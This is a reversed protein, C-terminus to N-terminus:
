MNMLSRSRLKSDVGVFLLRLNFNFNLTFSSSWITLRNSDFSFSFIFYINWKRWAWQRVSYMWLVSYLACGLHIACDANCNIIFPIFIAPRQFIGSSFFLFFLINKNGEREAGIGTKQNSKTQQQVKLNTQKILEGQHCSETQKVANSHHFLWPVAFLFCMEFFFFGCRHAVLLWLMQGSFAFAYLDSFLKEKEDKGENM